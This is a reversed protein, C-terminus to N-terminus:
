FIMIQFLLSKKAKINRGSLLYCQNNNNHEYKERLNNTNIFFTTDKRQLLFPKAICLLSTIDIGDVSKNTEKSKNLLVNRANPWSPVNNTM